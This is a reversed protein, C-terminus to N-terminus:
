AASPPGRDAQTRFQGPRPTDRTAWPSFSVVVPAPEIGTSLTGSFAPSTSAALMAPFDQLPHDAQIVVSDSTARVDFTNGLLQQLALAVSEPTLPSGDSFKVGPRLKFEWTTDNLLQWSVALSPM